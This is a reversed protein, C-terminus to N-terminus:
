MSYYGTEKEELKLQYIKKFTYNKLKVKEIKIKNLGQEITTIQSKLQRNKEYTEDAIENAEQLALTQHEKERSRKRTKNDIEQQLEKEKTYYNQSKVTFAEEVQSIENEKLFHADIIPSKKVCKRTFNRVFWAESIILQKEM